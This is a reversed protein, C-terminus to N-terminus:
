REPYDYSPGDPREPELEVRRAGPEITRPQEEAREHLQGLDFPRGTGEAPDDPWAIERGRAQGALAQYRARLTHDAERSAARELIELERKTFEPRPMELGQAKLERRYEEAALHSQAEHRQARGLEERLHDERSQVAGAVEHNEANFRVRLVATGTELHTNGIVENLTKAVFEGPAKEVLVPVRGRRAMFNEYSARAEMVRVGSIIERALARAARSGAPERKEEPARRDYIREAAALRYAARPDNTRESLAELRRLQDKSFVPLPIERGERRYRQCERTYATSLAEVMKLQSEVREDHAAAESQRRAVIEEKLRGLSAARESAARREGPFIHIRWDTGVIMAEDRARRLSRVTEVLSRREGNVEYRKFDRGGRLSDRALERAELEAQAMEYHAGLRGVERGTRTEEGHESSLLERVAQLGLFHEASGEAVAREELRAMESRSLEAVPMEQGRVAYGARIAAAEAIVEEAALRAKEEERSLAAVTRAQAERVQAFLHADRELEAAYIERRLAERAERGTVDKRTELARTARSGAQRRLDAESLYHDRGRDDRVHFRRLDIFAEAERREREATAIEAKMLLERGLIFRENRLREQEAQQREEVRPRALEIRRDLAREFAKAWPGLKVRPRGDVGAVKKQRAIHPVKGLELLRRSERHRYQKHVALHVHPHPTNLHIGAVWRLGEARKEDAVGRMGERTIERLAIARERDDNGLANFDESRLSIIVHRIEGNLARRGPVLVHDAQQYTLRDETESFLARPRKGEREEDRPRTSIYRTTENNASPNGTSKVSVAIRM